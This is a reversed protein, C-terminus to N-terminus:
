VADVERLWTWAEETDEFTQLALPLLPAFLRAASEIWGPAGVLAVRRLHSTLPTMRADQRLAGLSAGGFRDFRILLDAEDRTELIAEIAPIITDTYDSAALRGRIAFAAVTALPSPLREVAPPEGGEERVWAWAEDEQDRDFHRIRVRVLPDMVELVNEVWDPGGVVAYRDVHRLAERRLRALPGRVASLRVGPAGGEFRLLLRVWAHAEAVAQVDAAIRDADAGTFPGHVRYAVLGPADVPIPETGPAEPEVPPPAEGAWAFAEARDAPAFARVELTRVLGSEWSAVTRVWDLDTVVAARHFRGLQGLGRLGLRLDKLIAAPEMGRLGDIEVLVSIREHDELLADLRAEFADIDERTLKGTVRAALLHAPAPDTFTLM